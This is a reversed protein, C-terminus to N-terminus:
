AHRRSIGFPLSLVALVVATFLLALQALRTVDVIALRQAGTSTSVLLASPRQWVFAAQAARVELVRSQPTVRWHAVEVPPGDALYWRITPSM